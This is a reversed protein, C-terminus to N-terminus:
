IKSLSFSSALSLLLNANRPHSPQESDNPHFFADQWRTILKPSHHWAQRRWGARRLFVRGHTTWIALSRCVIFLPQQRECSGEPWLFDEWASSCEVLNEERSCGTPSDCSRPPFCQLAEPGTWRGGGMKKKNMLRFAWGPSHRGAWWGGWGVGRELAESLLGREELWLSLCEKCVPKKEIELHIWGEKM